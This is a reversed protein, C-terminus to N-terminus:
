SGKYGCERRKASSTQVPDRDKHGSSDQYVCVEADLGPGKETQFVPGNEESELVGESWGLLESSGPSSCARPRTPPLTRLSSGM